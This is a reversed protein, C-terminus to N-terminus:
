SKGAEVELLVAATSVFDASCIASAGAGNQRRKRSAGASCCGYQATGKSREASVRRPATLGPASPTDPRATDATSRARDRRRGGEDPPHSRSSGLPLEWIWRRPM